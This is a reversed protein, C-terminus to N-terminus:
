INRKIATSVEIETWNHETNPERLAKVLNSLREPITNRLYQGRWTFWEVGDYFDRTSQIKAELNSPRWAHIEEGLALLQQLGTRVPFHVHWLDADRLVRAEPTTPEHVFGGGNVEYRTSSIADIVDQVKVGAPFLHNRAAKHVAEHAVDINHQDPNHGTHHIDHMMAAIMCTTVNAGEDEALVAAAAAVLEMHRTNHYPLSQADNFRRIWNWLNELGLSARMNNAMITYYIPQCARMPKVFQTTAITNHM